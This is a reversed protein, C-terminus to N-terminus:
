EIKSIGKPLEELLKLKEEKKLEELALAKAKARLEVEELIHTAEIKKEKVAAHVSAKSLNFIVALNEYSMGPWYDKTELYSIEERIARSKNWELNPGGLKVRLIQLRIYDKSKEQTPKSELYILTIVQKLTDSM